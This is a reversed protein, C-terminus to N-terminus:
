QGKQINPMRNKEQLQIRLRATNERPTVLADRVSASFRNAVSETFRLALAPGLRRIRSDSAHRSM